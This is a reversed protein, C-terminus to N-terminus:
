MSHKIQFLLVVLCGLRSLLLDNNPQKWISLKAELFCGRSLETQKRENSRAEPLGRLMDATGASPMAGVLVSYSAVDEDM